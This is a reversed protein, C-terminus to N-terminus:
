YGESKGTNKVENMLRDIEFVEKAVNLSSFFQDITM